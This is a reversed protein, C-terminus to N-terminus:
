PLPRGRRLAAFVPGAREEDLAVRNERDPHPLVPLTHFRLGEAPVSRLERALGYLASLSDLGPGATVSSTAAELVPYLRAPNLLTSDGRAHEYLLKLFEQQRSIRNLDSGDGVLQRARLYALAQEGDLLHTGATLQHGVHWDSEDEALTVEVGGVADVVKEVASFEIVLHSDVRVGTLDELTRITCAAGGYQYAWNFQARRPETWAGDRGADGAGTEDDGHDERRCRPIDVMLDRPIHVVEARHGDAPLQLLLVTDSRATGTGGEEDSGIVVYTRTGGSAADAPPRAAADDALAAAAAHDTRVNGDLRLYLWWGVALLPLLIWTLVLLPRRVPLRRHRPTM